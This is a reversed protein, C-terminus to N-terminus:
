EETHVSDLVVFTNNSKMDKSTSDCGSNNIESGNNDKPISARALWHV